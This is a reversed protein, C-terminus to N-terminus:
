NIGPSDHDEAGEVPQMGPMKKKKFFRPTKAVFENDDDSPISDDFNEFVANRLLRFCRPSGGHPSCTQGIANNQPVCLELCVADYFLETWYDDREAIVLL